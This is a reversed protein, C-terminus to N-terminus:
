GDDFPQRDVLREEVDAPHLPDGAGRGLDGRPQADGHALVDAQRHGDADGARLEERFDRAGGRLGVAQELNRGLVLARLSSPPIRTLM